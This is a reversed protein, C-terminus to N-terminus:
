RDSNFHGFYVLTTGNITKVRYMLIQNCLSIFISLVNKKLLLLTCSHGMSIKIICRYVKITKNSGNCALIFLIVQAGLSSESRGTCGGLRILTKATLM